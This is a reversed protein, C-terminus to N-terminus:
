IDGEKLTKCKDLACVQKYLATGTGNGGLAHYASYEDSIRDFEDRTVYGREIVQYCDKDLRFWLLVKIGEKIAMDDAQKAKIHKRAPDVARSLLTVVGSVAAAMAGASLIIQQADM